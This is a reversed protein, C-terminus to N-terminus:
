VHHNSFYNPTLVQPVVAVGEPANFELVGVHKSGRAGSPVAVLPTLLFLMPELM